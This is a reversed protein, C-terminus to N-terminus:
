ASAASRRQRLRDLMATFERAPMPRGGLYGQYEDIGIKRLM